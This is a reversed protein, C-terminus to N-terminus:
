NIKQLIQVRDHIGDWSTFVENLKQTEPILRQTKKKLLNLFVMM